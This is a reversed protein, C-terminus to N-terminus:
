QTLIKHELDREYHMEQFNNYEYEYKVLTQLQPDTRCYALITKTVPKVSSLHCAM